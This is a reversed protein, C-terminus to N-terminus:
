KCCKHNIPLDPLEANSLMAKILKWHVGVFVGCIFSCIASFMFLIRRRRRRKREKKIKLEALGLISKRAKKKEKKM